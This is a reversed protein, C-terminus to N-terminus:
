EEGMGSRSLSVPGAEILRQLTHMDARAVASPPATESGAALEDATPGATVVPGGTGSGDIRVLGVSVALKTACTAIPAAPARLRTAAM